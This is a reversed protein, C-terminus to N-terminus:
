NNNVTVDITFRQNQPINRTGQKSSSTRLPPTAYGEPEDDDTIRHANQGVCVGEDTARKVAVVGNSRGVHKIALM